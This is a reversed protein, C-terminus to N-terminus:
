KYCSLATRNEVCLLGSQELAQPAKQMTNPNVGAQAALERVTPFKSGPPYEGNLVARQIQEVLQLYVPRDSAIKWKM